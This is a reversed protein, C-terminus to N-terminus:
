ATFGGAGRESPTSPATTLPSHARGPERGAHQGPSSVQSLMHLEPDFGRASLFASAAPHRKGASNCGRVWEPWHPHAQILAPSVYFMSISRPTGARHKDIVVTQIKTLSPRTPLKDFYLSVPEVSVGRKTDAGPQAALSDYDSTGIEVFDFDLGNPPARLADKKRCQQLLNRQAAKLNSNLLREQPIMSLCEQSLIVAEELLRKANRPERNSFDILAAALNAGAHAMATPRHGFTVSSNLYNERFAEVVELNTEGKM